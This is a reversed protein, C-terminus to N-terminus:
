DLGAPDDDEWPDDDELVDDLERDAEDTGFAALYDELAPSLDTVLYHRGNRGIIESCEIIMTLADKANTPRHTPSDVNHKSQRPLKTSM